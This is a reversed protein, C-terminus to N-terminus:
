WLPLWELVTVFVFEGVFDTVIDGVNLLESVVETLNESLLLLFIDGEIVRGYM